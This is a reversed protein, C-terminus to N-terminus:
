NRTCEDSDTKVSQPKEAKLSKIKRFEFTFNITMKVSLIPLNVSLYIEDEMNVM